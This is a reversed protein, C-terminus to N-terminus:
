ATKQIAKVYAELIRNKLSPLSKDEMITKKSSSIFNYIHTEANAYITWIPSSPKFNETDNIFVRRQMTRPSAHVPYKTWLNITKM